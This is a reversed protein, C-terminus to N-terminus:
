DHFCRHDLKWPAKWGLTAAPDIDPFKVHAIRLNINVRGLFQQQLAAGYEEARESACPRSGADGGYARQYTPLAM